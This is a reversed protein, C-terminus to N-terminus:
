KGLVALVAKRLGLQKLGAKELDEDTLRLLVTPVIDQEEFVDIIKKIQGEKLGSARLAEYFEEMSAFAKEETSTPVSAQTIIPPSVLESEGQVEIYYHHGEQLEDM